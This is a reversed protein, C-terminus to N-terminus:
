GWGWQAAPTHNRTALVLFRAARAIVPTEFLRVLGKEYNEGAWKRTNSPDSALRLAFEVLWGPTDPGARRIGFGNPGIKAKALPPSRLVLAEKAIETLRNVRLRTALATIEPMAAVLRTALRSSEHNSGIAHALMSHALESSKGLVTSFTAEAKGWTDGGLISFLSHTLSDVIREQGAATVFGGVAKASAWLDLHLAIEIASKTARPRKEINPRVDLAAFGKLRQTRGVVIAATFAGKRAVLLGGDPAALPASTTPPQLSQKVCPEDFSYRCCDDPAEDSSDDVLVLSTEGSRRRAVWRLPTFERECTISFVGLEEAAIRIECARAEDYSEALPAQRLCHKTVHERWEASSFPLTLAPASREVSRGGELDLSVTTVVQRGAPGRVEFASQGQWFQELTPRIPDVVVRLPSGGWDTWSRRERAVVELESQFDRSAPERARVQLKRTGAELPALEVFICEGEALGEVELVEAGFTLTIHELARDARLEIIPQDGVLWVGRGEGDWSASALAAPAARLSLAHHLGLAHLEAVMWRSLDQPLNIAIGQLGTCSLQVPAGLATSALPTASFLLYRENGRVRKSRVEQALGDSNIRFLWPPTPRLRCHTSLIVELAESAPEFKLLREGGPWKELVFQQPGQLFRGRAVPRGSTGTVTCRSGLLTAGMEPDLTALPALSPVELLLDWKTRAGNNPRLVLRPELDLAVTERLASLAATNSAGTYTAGASLGYRQVREQTIRKASALWDRAQREKTLDARIRELAQKEILESSSPTGELLLAASISGILEKEQALNQFRSSATWSQAAVLAGLEAPAAVARAAAGGLEFLIRALHHQLDRPLIAHTIPWCIISFQEAWPGRPEAGGFQGHFLSFQDRIWQRSGRVEWGPTREKFTQWYEHGDYEYGIEAAYVVWPLGHESRPSSQLISLRLERGLSDVEAPKLGHELVFVPRSQRRQHLDRFHGALRKQWEVLTM